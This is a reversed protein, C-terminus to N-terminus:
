EGVVAGLGQGSGPGGKGLQVTGGSAVGGECPLSQQSM